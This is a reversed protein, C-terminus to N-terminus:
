LNILSFAGTTLRSGDPAVVKGTLPALAGQFGDQVQRRESFHLVAPEFLTFDRLVFASSTLVPAEDGEPTITLQNSGYVLLGRLAPSAPFLRLTAAALDTPTYDFGAALASGSEVHTLTFKGPELVTHDTLAFSVTQRTQFRVRAKTTAPSAPEEVAPEEAAVPAPEAVVPPPAPPPILPTVKAERARGETSAGLKSRCGAALSVLFLLSVILPTSRM